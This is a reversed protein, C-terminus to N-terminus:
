VALDVMGDRYTAGVLNAGVLSQGRLDANAFDAGSLNAGTLDAEGFDANRFDGGELVAGTLNAGTFNADTFDGGGLNAGELNANSFNANRLNAGGFYAAHLYADQFNTRTLDAAEFNAHEVTAGDFNTGDLTTASFRANMAQHLPFKLKRQAKPQSQPEGHTAEATPTREQRQDDSTLRPEVAELLQTAEDVTIKGEELLKLISLRDENMPYRRPEYCSSLAQRPLVAPSRYAWNAQWGHRLAQLSRTRSRSKRAGGTWCWIPRKPWGSNASISSMCATSKM